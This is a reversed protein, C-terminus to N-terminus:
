DDDHPDTVTGDISAHNHLMGKGNSAFPTATAAVLGFNDVIMVNGTAQNYIARATAGGGFVDIFNREVIASYCVNTAEIDIGDVGSADGHIINRRIAGQIFYHDAGGAVLIGTTAPTEIINDEVVSGKMSDMKIGYAGVGGCDIICDHIWNNDGGACWIGPIAGGENNVWINAIEIGSGSFAICATAVIAADYNVCVGYDKGMHTPCGILRINYGSFLVQENYHGPRVYVTSFHDKTDDITETGPLYRALNVGKQITQVAGEWSRGNNTDLGNVSDVYYEVGPSVLVQGRSVSGEIVKGGSIIGM